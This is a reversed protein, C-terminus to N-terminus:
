ISFGAQGFVHIGYASRRYGDAGNRCGVLATALDAINAEIKIPHGDLTIAPQSANIRAIQRKEEYDLYRHHFEARTQQDPNVLLIGQSGDMVLYTGKEIDLIEEGLGIIPQFIWAAHLSPVTPLAGAVGSVSEWSIKEIWKLWSPPFWTMWSLLQLSKRFVPLTKSERVLCPLSVGPLIM